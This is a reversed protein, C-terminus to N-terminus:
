RQAAGGHASRLYERAELAELRRAETELDLHPIIIHDNFASWRRAHYRGIELIRNKGRTKHMQECILRRNIRRLVSEESVSGVKCNCHSDVYRVARRWARYTKEDTTM